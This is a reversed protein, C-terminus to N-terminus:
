FLSFTHSVKLPIEKANESTRLGNSLIDFIANKARNLGGYVNWVNISNSALIGETTTRMATFCRHLEEASKQYQRYDM